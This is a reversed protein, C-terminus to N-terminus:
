NKSYSSSECRIFSKLSLKAGVYNLHNKGKRNIKNMIEKTDKTKSSHKWTFLIFLYFQCIWAWWNKVHFNRHYNVRIIILENNLVVYFLVLTANIFSNIEKINYFVIFTMRKIITLFEENLSFWLSCLISLYRIFIFWAVIEIM